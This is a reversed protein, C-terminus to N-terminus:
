VFFSLRRSKSLSSIEMQEVGHFILVLRVVESTKNIAVGAPHNPTKSFIYNLFFFMHFACVTVHIWYLKLM